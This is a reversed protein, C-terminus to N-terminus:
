LSTEADIIPAIHAIEDAPYLRHVAPTNIYREVEYMSGTAVSVIHLPIFKHTTPTRALDEVSETVYIRSGKKTTITSRATERVARWWERMAERDHVAYKDSAGPIGSM